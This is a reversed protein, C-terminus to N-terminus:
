SNKYSSLWNTRCQEMTQLFEESPAIVPLLVRGIQCTMSADAVKIEFERSDIRLNTSTEEVIVMKIQPSACGNRLAWRWALYHIGRLVKINRPRHNGLLVWVMDEGHVEFTYFVDAYFGCAGDVTEWAHYDIEYSFMDGSEPLTFREYNMMTVRYADWLRNRGSPDVVKCLRSGTAEDPLARATCWDHIELVDVDLDRALNAIVFEGNKIQSQLRLAFDKFAYVVPFAGNCSKNM